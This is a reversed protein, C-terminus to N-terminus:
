AETGSRRPTNPLAYTAVVHAVMADSGESFLEVEGVALRKGLRLIRAIARLGAQTPKTLFNISLSSTVALPEPGIAGLVAAYMAVDALGMLVPGGITGGPRLFAQDYAIRVIAHGVGIEVTEMGWAAAIPLSAALIENFEAITIRAAEAM